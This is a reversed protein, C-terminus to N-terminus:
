VTMTPGVEGGRLCSISSRGAIAETGNHLGRCFLPPPLVTTTVASHHVNEGLSFQGPRDADLGAIYGAERRPRAAFHVAGRLARTRRGVSRGAEAVGPVGVPPSGILFSSRCTTWGRAAPSSTCLISIVAVTRSHAAGPLSGVQSVRVKRASADPEPRSPRGSQERRSVSEQGGTRVLM